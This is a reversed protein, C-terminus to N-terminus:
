ECERNFIRLEFGLCVFALNSGGLVVGIQFVNVFSRWIPLEPGDFCILRLHVKCRSAFVLVIPLCSWFTMFCSFYIWFCVRFMIFGQIIFEYGEMALGMGLILIPLNCFFPMSSADGSLICSTIMLFLLGIAPSLLFIIERKREWGILFNEGIQIAQHRSSICGHEREAENSSKKQANGSSLM